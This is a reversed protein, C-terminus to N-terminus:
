ETETENTEAVHEIQETYGALEHGFEDEIKVTANKVDSANHLAALSQHYNVKASELNDFTASVSASYQDSTNRVLKMINYKM